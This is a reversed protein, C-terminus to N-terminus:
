TAWGTEEVLVTRQVGASVPVPAFLTALSLLVAVAALPKLTM